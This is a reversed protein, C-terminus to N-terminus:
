TQITSSAVPEKLGTWLTTLYYWISNFLNPTSMDWARTRGAAAWRVSVQVAAASASLPRLPLLQSLQHCLQHAASYCCFLLSAYRSDQPFQYLLARASLTSLHQIIFTFGLSSIPLPVFITLLISFCGCYMNGTEANYM